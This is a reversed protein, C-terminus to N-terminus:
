SDVSQGHFSSDQRQSKKSLTGGRIRYVQAAHGDEVWNRYRLRLTKGKIPEAESQITEKLNTKIEIKADIMISM